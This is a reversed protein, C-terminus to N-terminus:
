GKLLQIPIVKLVRRNMFAGPDGEDANCIMYKPNQLVIGPLVGNKVQRFIWCWWSRTFRIGDCADIVEEPAMETLVKASLWIAM